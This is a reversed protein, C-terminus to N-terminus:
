ISKHLAKMLNPAATFLNLSANGGVVVVCGHMPPPVLPAGPAGPAHTGGGGRGEGQIIGKLLDRNYHVQERGMTGGGGWTM